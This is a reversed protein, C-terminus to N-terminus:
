LLINDEDLKQASSGSSAGFNAHPGQQSMKGLDFKAQYKLAQGLLEDIKVSPLVSEINQKEQTMESKHKQYVAVM